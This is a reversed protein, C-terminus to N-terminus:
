PTHTEHKSWPKYGKIQWVCKDPSFKCNFCDDGGYKCGNGHSLFVLNNGSGYKTRPIKHHGIGSGIEEGNGKAHSIKVKPIYETHYSM